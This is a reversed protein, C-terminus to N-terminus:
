WGRLPPGDARRGGRRQGPDRAVVPLGVRSPSHGRRGGSPCPSGVPTSAFRGLRKGTEATRSMPTDHARLRCLRGRGLARLGRTRARAAGLRGGSVTSSCWTAPARTPAFWRTMPRIGARTTGGRFAEAIGPREQQHADPDAGRRCRDARRDRLHDPLGALLQRVRARAGGTSSPSSPTSTPPSSSGTPGSWSPRASTLHWLVLLSLAAAAAIAVAARWVTTLAQAVLLAVVPLLVVVYRPEDVLWTSPSLAYLFPFAAVVGFLLGSPSSRRRWWAIVFLAILAAYAVASLVKGLPWESTFPVRLGLAMPFTASFFGRLRTPYPTQGSDVDFSWWDNAINSLLWPLAALVAVPLVIWADRWIERQKWLLWALAPLAIPLVQPTQWWGLGLVLGLLAADLRTRRESLRLVLLLILCVFVLGSGYFGHARDSKWVLYPPWVWFFVAAIRAAPEGVTRRGIRWVLVAAVAMCALPVVRIVETSMGFLAVLPVTALVEQTGGYGQGWFFASSGAPLAPGDAGLRSRRRRAHRALLCIRLRSSRHRRARRLLCSSCPRALRSPGLGFGCASRNGPEESATLDFVAPRDPALAAARCCDISVRAAVDGRRQCCTGHGAPPMARPPRRITSDLFPVSGRRGRGRARAPCGPPRSRARGRARSRRRRSRSRTRTRSPSGTPLASRHAPVRARRRGRRGRAARRSPRADRPSRGFHDDEATPASSRLAPM